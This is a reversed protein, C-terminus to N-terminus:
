CGYDYWHVNIGDDREIFGNSWCIASGGHIKACNCTKLAYETLDGLEERSISKTKKSHNCWGILARYACTWKDTMCEGPKLTLTPAREESIERARKHFEVLAQVGHGQIFCKFQIEHKKYTNIFYKSDWHKVDWESRVPDRPTMGLDGFSPSGMTYGVLTALVIVATKSLKM